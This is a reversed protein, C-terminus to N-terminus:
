GTGGCAAAARRANGKLFVQVLQHTTGCKRSKEFQRSVRISLSGVATVLIMQNYLELGARRFARVTHGPLNRFNGDGDRVDGIVWCAFRDPRLRECSRAIIEEYAELFREYPMNSIDDPHKSYVELDAYPPCSLVADADPARSMMVRSDGQNWTCATQGAGLITEGQLRNAIVQREALDNGWYTRGLVASVIGRVSGGAFPDIIRGGPPTFWEVLLETLVPDFISTGCDAASAPQGTKRYCDLTAHHVLGPQSTGQTRDHGPTRAGGGLVLADADADAKARRKKKVAEPDAYANQTLGYTLGGKLSATPLVGDEPKRDTNQISEPRAKSGGRGGPFYANKKGSGGSGTAAARATKTDEPRDAYDGERQRYEECSDSISLLNGGRGLESQIGLAIWCRKRQQWEGERANLVSFPPLLFRKGLLGQALRHRVPQGLLDRGNLAADVRERDM